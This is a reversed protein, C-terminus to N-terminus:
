KVVTYDQRKVCSFFIRESDKGPPGFDEGDYLSLLELGSEGLLDTLEEVSHAREVHTEEYRRYQGNKEKIFFTAQYENLRSKEDYFGNIIFAARKKAESFSKQHTKIFKTETVIDFIFSGGPNLYNNVLAFMASLDRKKLLYNVSDCACIVADVTGYLEFSTMSQNLFLIDPAKDKAVALMEPSSDIGIMDYGLAALRTTMNGTGCALDLVLRPSLGNGRWIRRINEVWEDYPINAMFTDYVHAFATYMNDNFV